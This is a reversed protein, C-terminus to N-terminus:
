AGVWRRRPVCASRLIAWHCEGSGGAVLTDNGEDRLVARDTVDGERSTELRLGDVTDDAFGALFDRGSEWGEVREFLLVAHGHVHLGRALGLCALGLCALGLGRERLDVCSALRSALLVAVAHLFPEPQVRVGRVRLCALAPSALLQTLCGLCAVDEDVASALWLGSTHPTTLVRRSAWSSLLLCM